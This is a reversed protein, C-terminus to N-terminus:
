SMYPIKLIISKEEMDPKFRLFIQKWDIGTFLKCQEFVNTDLFICIKSESNNEM